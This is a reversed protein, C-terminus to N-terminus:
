DLDGSPVPGRELIELFGELRKRFFFSEESLPYRISEMHKSVDAASLSFLRAVGLSDEMDQDTGRRLKSAIYDRPDLVKVTVGGTTLVERARERYGEPLPVVGWHDINDGINFLIGKQQLHRVLAGYFEPSCSIEADIDLTGRQLGYLGMAAGGIVIMGVPEGKERAFFLCENLSPNEDSM